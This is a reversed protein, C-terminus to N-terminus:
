SLPAKAKEVRAKLKQKEAEKNKKQELIEYEIRSIYLTQYYRIM